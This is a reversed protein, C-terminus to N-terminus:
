FDLSLSLYTIPTLVNGDEVGWARDLRIFYGFLRTRLGFGYGGILPNHQTDLTILLPSQSNGIVTTNLSNSDSYPSAGTWATGVDVFTLIQFNEIFDARIPRKYLYKFIPFRM